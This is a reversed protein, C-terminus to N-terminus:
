LTPSDTATPPRELGEEAIAWILAAVAAVNAALEDKDVKGWTVAESPTAGSLGGTDPRADTFQLFYDHGKEDLGLVEQIQPETQLVFNKPSGGGLVWVASKGGTSKASWVIATTENVDRNVDFDLENGEFAKCAVNMGISSDGPSSRVAKNRISTMSIGTSSGDCDRMTSLGATKASGSVPTSSPSRITM